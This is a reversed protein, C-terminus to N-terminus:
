PKEKSDVQKIVILAEELRMFGCEPHRKDSMRAMVQSCEWEGGAAKIHETAAQALISVARLTHSLTGDHYQNFCIVVCGLGDIWDRMTAPVPESDGYMQWIAQGPYSHRFVAPEYAHGGQSTHPHVIAGRIKQVTVEERVKM